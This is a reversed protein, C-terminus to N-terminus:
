LTGLDQPAQGSDGALGRAARLSIGCACREDRLQLGRGGMFIQGGARSFLPGSKDGKKQADENIKQLKVYLEKQVLEGIGYSTEDGPIPNRKMWGGNAYAFFDDNPKQTTDLDSTIMDGKAADKPAPTNCAALFSAATILAIFTKNMSKKLNLQLLLNNQLLVPRPFLPLISACIGLMTM